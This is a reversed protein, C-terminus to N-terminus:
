STRTALTLGDGFPLIQTSVRPHRALLQNMHDIAIAKRQQKAERSADATTEGSLEIARNHAFADRDNMSEVDLVHGYWLVNDIVLVGGPRLLEVLQEVYEPYHAKDGDLYIMDWCQSSFLRPDRAHLLSLADGDVLEIISRYPENAFADQVLARYRKNMEITLLHPAHQQTSMASNEAANQEVSTISVMAEAMVMASTGIFTGIELVRKAQTARVLFGLLGRMMPGSAMDVYALSATAKEVQSRVADSVPTSWQISYSELQDMRNLPLTNNKTREMVKQSVKDIPNLGM